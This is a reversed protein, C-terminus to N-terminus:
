LLIRNKIQIENSNIKNIVYSLNKIMSELIAPHEIVNNIFKSYQVNSLIGGNTSSGSSYIDLVLKKRNRKIRYGIDIYSSAYDNDNNSTMLEIIVDKYSLSTISSSRTKKISKPLTANDIINYIDQVSVDTLGSIKHYLYCGESFVEIMMTTCVGM